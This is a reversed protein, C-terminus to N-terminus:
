PLFTTPKDYIVTNTVTLATSPTQNTIIDKDNPLYFLVNSLNTPTLNWSPTFGSTSYKAGLTILPQSINGRLKLNQDNTTMTDCTGNLIIYNCGDMDNLFSPVAEGPSAIGNIFTYLINNKKMWVVHSWTNLQVTTNISTGFFTGNTRMSSIAPKNGYILFWFAKLTTDASSFPQRFDIVMSSGWLTPLQNMYLWMEVTWDVGNMSNFNLNNMYLSGNTVNYVRYNNLNMNLIRYNYAINGSSDTAQYTATYSGITLSSTNTILTSTGSILINSTLINTNGSIISTLYALCKTNEFDLGYAGPDTYSSGNPITLSSAGSIYVTPPTDNLRIKIIGGTRYFGWIPIGANKAEINYEYEPLEAVVQGYIGLTSNISVSSNFISLGSINLNSNMSVYNNIISLGSVFLNSNISCSSNFISSNNINMTSNVNISGNINTQGSINLSSNVTTANNINTTGLVSLANGITAYGNIITFGSINLSSNISTSNNINTLGSITLSNNITTSNNIVTLGLVNLSNLMTTSGNITTVGSVSLSNTIGLAGTFNAVGGINLSNMYVPGILTTTGSIVLNNDLDQVTIYNTPSNLIPTKLEFRTADNSTRIFGYSSIGMIQIGSLLGNDNGQLTASNINLSILKDVFLTESSAIYTATGNIFVNSLNNGITINNANIILNTGNINNTFIDNKFTAIGSINITSNFTTPSNLITYGNVNLNNNITTTGSINLSSTITTPGNINTSGSINVSSAFTASGNINTPGIVNLNSVMTTSNNLLTNRSVFLNSNLSVNNTFYCNGVSDPIINSLGVINRYTNTLTQDLQFSM